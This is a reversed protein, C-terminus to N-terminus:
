CGRGRDNWNWEAPIKRAEKIANLKDFPCSAANSGMEM